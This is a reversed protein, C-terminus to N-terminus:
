QVNLGQPIGAGQEFVCRVEHRLTLVGTEVEYTFDRGRVDFGQGAIRVEGNARFVRALADFEASETSIAFQKASEIQINGDLIAKTLTTGGLYLRAAASRVSIDGDKERFIKLSADNVHTVFERPYYKADKAHVEWVPKGEKIEIRHFEELQVRSVISGLQDSLAGSSVAASSPSGELVSSRASSRQVAIFLLTLLYASPLLIFIKQLRSPSPM